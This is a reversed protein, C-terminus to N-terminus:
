DTIPRRPGPCFARAPNRRKGVFRSTVYRDAIQVNAPSPAASCSGSGATSLCVRGLLHEPEVRVHPMWLYLQPSFQFRRHNFSVKLAKRVIRM